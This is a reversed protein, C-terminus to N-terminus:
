PHRLQITRLRLGRSLLGRHPVLVANIPPTQRNKGAGAQHAVALELPMSGLEMLRLRSTDADRAGNRELGSILPADLVGQRMLEAWADVSRFRVPTPLLWDCGALLHQHLPDISVRAGGAALRHARSGLRLLRMATSSGYRCRKLSRPERLLGFDQELARYRRSVTPQSLNLLQSTQVTTGSLELLDLLRIDNLLEPLSQTGPLLPLVRPTM